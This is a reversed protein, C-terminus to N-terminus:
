INEEILKVVTEYLSLNKSVTDFSSYNNILYKHDLEIKEYIKEYFVIINNVDSLNIYEDGRDLLNQKVFNESPLLFFNMTDKNLLSTLQDSQEKSLLIKDFLTGYVINSYHTRDIIVNERTFLNKMYEFMEQQGKSAIEFSSGQVIEFGYKKSLQKALTSKGSCDVGDLTIRKIKM